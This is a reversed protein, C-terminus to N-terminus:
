PHGLLSLSHEILNVIERYGVRCGNASGRTPRVSVAFSSAAEAPMKRLAELLAMRVRRRFTNREVASGTKRPASVLLLPPPLSRTDQGLWFVKIDLPGCTSPRPRRPAAPVVHDKQRVVSFRGAIRM